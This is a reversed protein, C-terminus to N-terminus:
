VDAPKRDAAPALRAGPRKIWLLVLISVFATLAMLPLTIYGFMFVFRETCSIIDTSCLTLPSGWYQIYSHYAAVLTGCVSLPWLYAGADGQKRYLAVAAILAQPFLFIREWWCLTCAPYGIVNSYLTSGAVSGLTIIFIIVLSNEGFWSLVKQGEKRLFLALILITLIGAQCVVTTVGLTLNLLSIFSAM